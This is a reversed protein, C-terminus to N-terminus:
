GLLRANRLMENIKTLKQTEKVPVTTHTVILMNSSKLSTKKATRKTRINKKKALSM